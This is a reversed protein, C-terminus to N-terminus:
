SSSLHQSLLAAFSLIMFNLELMKKYNLSSGFPQISNRPDNLSESLVFRHWALVIKNSPYRAGRRLDRRMTEAQLSWCLTDIDTLLSFLYSCWLAVLNSIIWVINFLLLRLSKVDGDVQAATLSSVITCGSMFILCQVLISGFNAIRRMDDTCVKSKVLLRILTVDLSLDLDEDYLGGHFNGEILLENVRRFHLLSVEISKSLDLINQTLGVLHLFIGVGVINFIVGAQVIGYFLEILALADLLSYASWPSCEVLKREICRKHLSSSLLLPPFSTGFWASLIIMSTIGLILCFHMRKINDSYYCAPRLAWYSVKENLLLKRMKHEMQVQNAFNNTTKSEKSIEDDRLILDFVNRHREILNTLDEFREKIIMDIRDLERQPDIVLRVSPLDMPRNRHIYPVYFFFYSCAVTCISYTLLSLGFVSSLPNGIAISMWETLDLLPRSLDARKHQLSQMALTLGYKVMCYTQFSHIVQIWIRCFSDFGTPEIKVKESRYHRFVNEESDPYHGKYIIFPDYGLAYLSMETFLVVSRVLINSPDPKLRSKMSSGFNSPALQSALM